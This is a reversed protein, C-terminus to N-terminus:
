GPAHPIRGSWPNFWHGRCQFITKLGSSWLLLGTINGYFLYFNSTIDRTWLQYPCTVSDSKWGGKAQSWLRPERRGWFKKLKGLAAGGPFPLTVMSQLHPTIAWCGALLRLEKQLSKNLPLTMLFTSGVRYFTLKLTPFHKSYGLSYFQYESSLFWM